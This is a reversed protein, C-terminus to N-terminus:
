PGVSPVGAGYDYKKSLARCAISYLTEFYLANSQRTPGDIQLIHFKGKLGNYFSRIAGVRGLAVMAQEWWVDDVSRRTKVSADVSKFQLTQQQNKYMTIDGTPGFPPKYSRLRLVSLLAAGEDFREKDDGDLANYGGISYSDMLTRSVSNFENNIERDTCQTNDSQLRQRVTQYIDTWTFFYVATRYLKESGVELYWKMHYPGGMAATYVARLEQPTASGGPVVVVNPPTAENSGDPKVISILPNVVAFAADGVEKHRLVTTDGVIPM